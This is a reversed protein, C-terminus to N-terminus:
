SQTHMAESNLGREGDGRENEPCLLKSKSLRTQRGKKWVAEREGERKAEEEEEEGKGECENTKKRGEDTEEASSPSEASKALAGFAKEGEERRGGGEREGEEETCAGKM